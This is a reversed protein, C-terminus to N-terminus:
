HNGVNRFEWGKGEDYIATCVDMGNSGGGKHEYRVCITLWCRNVGDKTVRLRSNFHEITCKTLLAAFIGTNPLICGSQIAVYLDGDRSTKLVPTAYEVEVGYFFTKIHAFLPAFGITQAFAVLDKNSDTIEINTIDITKM